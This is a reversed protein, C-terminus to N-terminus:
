AMRKKFLFLFENSQYPFLRASIEGHPIFRGKEAQGTKGRDGSLPPLPVYPAMVSPFAANDVMGQLMYVVYQIM